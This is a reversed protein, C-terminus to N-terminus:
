YRDPNLIRNIKLYPILNADRVTATAITGLVNFTYKCITELVVVLLSLYIGSVDLFM